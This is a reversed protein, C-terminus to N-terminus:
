LLKRRKLEKTMESSLRKKSKECDEYTMKDLKKKFKGGVPLDYCRAIEDTMIGALVVIEEESLKSFIGSCLEIIDLIKMYNEVM